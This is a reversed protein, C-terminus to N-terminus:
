TKMNSLLRVRLEGPPRDKRLQAYMSTLNFDILKKEVSRM